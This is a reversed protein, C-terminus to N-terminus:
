SRPKPRPHEFAKRMEEAIRVFPHPGPLSPPTERIENRELRDLVQELSVQIRENDARHTRAIAVVFPALVAAPLLGLPGFLVTVPAIALSGLGLIMGAALIRRARRPRIDARLVVHCFGPELQTVQGTVEEANALAYRRGRSGLARQISAIAGAKPEWTTRDPYRRKVQLSEADEMWRSLAREVTPRDGPVVRQASLVRPGTLWAWFGQGTEVVTRTQEELLAQQLYRNPIGVDKGLALVEEKTLGEGIDREGAQLEAARQIIRELADRSILEGAM